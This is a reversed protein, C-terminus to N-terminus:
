WTNDEWAAKGVHRDGICVSSRKREHSFRREREKERQREGRPERQTQTPNILTASSVFLAVITTDSYTLLRPFSWACTTGTVTNTATRERQKTM